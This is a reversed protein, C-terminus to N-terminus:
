WRLPKQGAEKLASIDAFVVLNEGARIELKGDAAVEGIRAHPV